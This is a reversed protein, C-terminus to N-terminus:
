HPREVSRDVHPEDLDITRQESEAVREDPGGDVLRGAIVVPAGRMGTERRDEAIVRVAAYEM